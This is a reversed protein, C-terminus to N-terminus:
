QKGISRIYKKIWKMVLQEGIILPLSGEKSECGRTGTPGVM